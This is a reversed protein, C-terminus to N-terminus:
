AALIIIGYKWVAKLISKGGLLEDERKPGLASRSWGRISNSRPISRDEVPIYNTKRFIPHQAMLRVAFNFNGAQINEDM